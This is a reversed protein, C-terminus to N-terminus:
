NWFTRFLEVAAEHYQSKSFDVPHSTNRSLEQLYKAMTSDKGNYTVRKKVEIMKDDCSVPLNPLEHIVWALTNLQKTWVFLMEDNFYGFPYTKVGVNNGPQPPSNQVTATLQAESEFFAAESEFYAAEHEVWKRLADTCRIYEDYTKLLDMAAEHWYNREDAYARAATRYEVAQGYCSEATALVIRMLRAKQRPATADHEKCHERLEALSKFTKPLKKAFNELELMADPLPIYKM